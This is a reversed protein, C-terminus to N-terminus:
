RIESCYKDACHAIRCCSSEHRCRCSRYFRQNIKELGSNTEMWSIMRRKPRALMRRRSALAWDGQVGALDRKTPSSDPERSSLASSKRRYRNPLRSNFNEKKVRWSKDGPRAGVESRDINATRSSVACAVSAASKIHISIHGHCTQFFENGDGKSQLRPARSLNSVM